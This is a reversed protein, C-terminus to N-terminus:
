HRRISLNVMVGALSFDIITSKFNLVYQKFRVVPTRPGLAYANEVVPMLENILENADNYLLTEIRETGHLSLIPFFPTGTLIFESFFLM